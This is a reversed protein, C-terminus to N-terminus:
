GRDGKEKGWRGGDNRQLSHTHDHDMLIIGASVSGQSEDRTLSDTRLFIM